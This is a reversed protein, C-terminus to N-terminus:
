YTAADAFLADLKADDLGLASALHQVLESDRDFTRADEWDVRAEERQPSPMADIAAEVSDLLEARLLARRGQRRDVVRPPASPPQEAVPAPDPAIFSGGDYRHGISTAVGEELLIAQQGSAPQWNEDRGDREILNTVLGGEVIAYKM